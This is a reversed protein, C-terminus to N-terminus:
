FFCNFLYTIMIFSLTLSHLCHNHVSATHILCEGLCHQDEKTKTSTQPALECVKVTRPVETSNKLHYCLSMVNQTVKLLSFGRNCQQWGASTIIGFTILAAFVFM